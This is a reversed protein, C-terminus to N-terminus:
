GGIVGLDLLEGGQLEFDLSRSEEQWGEGAVHTSEEWTLTWQGPLLEDATYTDGARHMLVGGPNHQIYHYRGPRADGDTPRYIRLSGLHLDPRESAQAQVAGREGPIEVTLEEADTPVVALLDYTHRRESLADPTQMGLETPVNLCVCQLHPASGDCRNKGCFINGACQDCLLTVDVTRERPVVLEHLSGDLLITHQSSENGSHYVFVSTSQIAGTVEYDGSALAEVGRGKLEAGHMPEGHRDVLRVQATLELNVVVEPADDPERVFDVRQVPGGSPPKLWATPRTDCRAEDFSAGGSPDLHVWEDREGVHALRVRGSVPSGDATEFIVRVPCVARWRLGREERETPPGVEIIYTDQNPHVEVEYTTGGKWSRSFRVSYAPRCRANSVVMLGDEEVIWQRNRDAQEVDRENMRAYGRIPQGNPTQFIFHVEGCWKEGSLTQEVSETVLDPLARVQRTQHTVTRALAESSPLLEFTQGIYLLAVVICILVAVLSSFLMRLLDRLETGHPTERNTPSM